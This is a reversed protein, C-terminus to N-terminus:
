RKFFNEQKEQQSHSTGGIEELEVTTATLNIDSICEKKVESEALGNENLNEENQDTPKVEKKQKKSRKSLREKVRVFVNPKEEKEVEGIEERRAEEKEKKEECKTEENVSNDNEKVGMETGCWEGYDVTGM